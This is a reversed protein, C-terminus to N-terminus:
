FLKARFRTWLGFLSECFLLYLFLEKLHAHCLLPGCFLKARIRTGWVLFLEAFWFSSQLFLGRKFLARKAQRQWAFGFLAKAQRALCFSSKKRALCFSVLFLGFLSWFSFSCPVFLAHCHWALIFSPLFLAFLSLAQCLFLM